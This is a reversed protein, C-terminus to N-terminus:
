SRFATKYRSIELGTGINVTYSAFYDSNQVFDLYDRVTTQHSIVNDAVILSDPKIKPLLSQLYNLYGIKGADIFVFEYFGNLQPIVKEALGLILNVNNRKQLNKRAMKYRKEDVEITDVTAAIYAAALSIWFTSYGNSTGIELIRAPKNQQILEYLYQATKLDINWLRRNATKQEAFNQLEKHHIELQQQFTIEM